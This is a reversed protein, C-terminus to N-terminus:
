EDFIAFSSGVPHRNIKLHKKQKMNVEALDTEKNITVEPLQAAFLFIFFSQYSCCIHLSLLFPSLRYFIEGNKLGALLAIICADLLNGDYDLCM